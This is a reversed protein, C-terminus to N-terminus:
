HVCRISMVQIPFFKAIGKKALADVIQTDMGLNAIELGKDSNAGSVEEYNSYDREVAFQTARPVVSAHFNLPRPKTNITRSGDGSVGYKGALFRRPLPEISALAAFFRRSIVSSSRRLIVSSTM